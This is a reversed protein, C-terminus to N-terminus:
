SWSACAGDVEVTCDSRRFPDVVIPSRCTSPWGSPSVACRGSTPRPMRHAPQRGGGGSGRPGTGDRLPLAAGVHRRVDPLRRVRDPLPVARGDRRVADIRGPRGLPRQAGPLGGGGRRRGQGCDPGGAVGSPVPGPWGAPSRPRKAAAGMGLTSSVAVCPVSDDSVMFSGMGDVDRLRLGADSSPTPWPRPPWRCSARGSARSFPTFGVGVVPRGSGVPATVTGTVDRYSGRRLVVGDVHSPRSGPSSGTGSPWLSPRNSVAWADHVRTSSSPPWPVSPAGRLRAVRRRPGDRVLLRGRSRDVGGRRIHPDCVM